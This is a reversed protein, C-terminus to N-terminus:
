LWKVLEALSGNALNFFFPFRLKLRPENHVVKIRGQLFGLVCPTLSLCISELLIIGLNIYPFQMTPNTMFVVDMSNGHQILFLQVNSVMDNELISV